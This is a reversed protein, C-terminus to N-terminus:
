RGGWTEGDQKGLAALADDVSRVIIICGREALDRQEPSVPTRPGKVEMGIWGNRTPDWVLLDPIGKDCGDGAHQWTGCTPCRKRRRSTVLVTYGLLRLSQVIAQQIDDESARLVPSERKARARGHADGGPGTQM